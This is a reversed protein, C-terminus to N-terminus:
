CISERVNKPERTAREKMFFIIGWIAGWIPQKPSEWAIASDPEDLNPSFFLLSKSYNISHDSAKCFDRLGELICDVQDEKAEAFM